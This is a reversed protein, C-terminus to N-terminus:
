NTRQINVTTNTVDKAAKWEFTQVIPKNKGSNPTSAATLQINQFLFQYKKTAAGGLTVKLSTQTHNLFKTLYTADAFYCSFKGSAVLQAMQIEAPDVNALQDFVILGNNLSFSLDTLGAVSGAGGEQVVQISAIPDMIANTPAATPGGTGVTAGAIVPSKSLCSVAATIIQGIQVNVDLKQVMAGKYALFQAIDTFQREVTMSKRTTGVSITDIGASPSNLTWANGLLSQLFDDLNGYSLETAFDIGGARSTQIIGAVERNTSVENSEVTNKTQKGDASVYRVLQLATAPTTGWAAEMNYGIQEKNTIANAM